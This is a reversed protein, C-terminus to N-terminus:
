TSHRGRGGCRSYSAPWGNRWLSSPKRIVTGRASRRSTPTWPIDLGRPTTPAECLLMRLESSGRKTIHGPREQEGSSCSSPALGIYSTVRSSDAFRDPTGLVAIYSASTVLGVGPTSQLLAATERFPELVGALEKECALVKETAVGVARPAHGPIEEAPCRGSGYATEAM